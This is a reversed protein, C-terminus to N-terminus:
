NGSTKFIITPLAVSSNKGLLSVLGGISEKPQASRFLNRRFSANIVGPAVTFGSSIDGLINHVSKPQLETSLKWQLPYHFVISKTFQENYYIRIPNRRQETEIPSDKLTTPSFLGAHQVIVERDTVTALNDVTFNIDFILPKKYEKENLISFSSVAADLGDSIVRKKIFTDREKENMNKLLSRFMISATGNMTTREKVTIVGEESLVVDFDDQISSSAGGNDPITVFEISGKKDIVIAPQGQLYDPIIDYPLDKRYPLLVFQQTDAKVVVAPITCQSISLYSPDFYGEDASHVMVYKPDFGAKKLMSHALGTIAYPNGKKDTLIDAFNRDEYDRAIDVTRQIFTVISDIMMKRDTVGNLIRDTTNSVRNSLFGDRDVVYGRFSSVLDTWNKSAEYNWSVMNMETVMFELYKSIEKTFPSYEERKTAPINKSSYSIINKHHEPDNKREVNLYTDKAIQKMSIKWWDPYAYSFSFQECPYAFQFPLDHSLLPRSSYASRTIEFGEQIICGRTIQPYVFKYRLDGDSDTEKIMDKLSYRSITGDTRTVVMFVNGIVSNKSATFTFTTLNQADPNLILYKRQIVDTFDWTGFMNFGQGKTGYHEISQRTDLIVGDYTGYKEMYASVDISDTRMAAPPELQLVRKSSVCSSLLLAASLLLLIKKM